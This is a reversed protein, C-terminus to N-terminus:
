SVDHLSLIIGFHLYLEHHTLWSSNCGQWIPVQTCSIYDPCRGHGSEPMSAKKNESGFCTVDLSVRKPRSILCDIPQQANYRFQGGPGGSYIGLLHWSFAPSGFPNSDRWNLILISHKWRPPGLNNNKTLPRLSDLLLLRMGASQSYM